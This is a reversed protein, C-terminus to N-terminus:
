MVNTLHRFGRNNKYHYPHSSKRNNQQYCPKFNERQGMGEYLFSKKGSSRGPNNSNLFINRGSPSSQFNKRFLCQNVKITETIKNISRLLKDGFFLKPQEDQLLSLYKYSVNLQYINILYSSCQRQAICNRKGLAICNFKGLLGM